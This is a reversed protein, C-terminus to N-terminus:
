RREKIRFVMTGTVAGGGSNVGSDRTISILNTTFGTLRGYNALTPTGGSGVSTSQGLYEVDCKNVVVDTIAQSGTTAGSAFAVPVLQVNKYGLLWLLFASPFNRM